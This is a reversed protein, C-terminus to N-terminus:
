DVYLSRKVQKQEYKNDQLQNSEFSNLKTIPSQVSNNGWASCCFFFRFYKKIFVCIKNILNGIVDTWSTKNNQPTNGADSSPSAPTDMKPLPFPSLRTQSHQKVFEVVRDKEPTYLQIKDRIDKVSFRIQALKDVCGQRESEQSSIKEKLLQICIGFGEESLDLNCAENESEESVEEIESYFGLQNLEEASPERPEWSEATLQSYPAPESSERQNSSQILLEYAIKALELAREYENIFGKRLQEATFLDYQALSTARNLKGIGRCVEDSERCLDIYEKELSEKREQASVNNIVM